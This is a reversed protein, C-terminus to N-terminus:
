ELTLNIDSSGLKIAKLSKVQSGSKDMVDGSPSLRATVEFEGKFPTNPFMTDKATLTFQVPFTPNEIKKVVVPMKSKSGYNKAFVFLVGKTKLGKKINITGSLEKGFAFTSLFLINLILIYKM